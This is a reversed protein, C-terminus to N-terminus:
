GKTYKYLVSLKGPTGSALTVNGEKVKLCSRLGSDGGPPWMATGRLGNGPLGSPLRGTCPLYSGTPAVDCNCVVHACLFSLQPNCRALLQILCTCLLQATPSNEHIGDSFFDVTTSKV